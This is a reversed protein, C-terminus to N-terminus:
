YAEACCCYLKNNNGKYHSSNFLSGSKDYAKAGHCNRFTCNEAEVDNFGGICAVGKNGCDIFQCNKFYIKSNTSSIITGSTSSSYCDEFNCDIIKVVNKINELWIVEKMNTFICKELIINNVNNFSLTKNEDVDKFKCNRIVVSDVDNFSLCGNEIVQNVMIVSDLSSYEKDKNVLFLSRELSFINTKKESNNVKLYDDVLMNTYCKAYGYWYINEIGKIAELDYTVIARALILIKRLDKENFSLAAGLQAIFKLNKRESKGGICTIIFCDTMFIRGLEKTNCQCIFEGIKEENIQSSNKCYDEILLGPSCNDIINRIFRFQIDMNSNEYQVIMCLMTLYLDRTYEDVDDKSLPHGNFPQKDSNIKSIFTSIDNNM